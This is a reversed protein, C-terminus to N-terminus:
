RFLNIVRPVVLGTLGMAMRHGGTAVVLGAGLKEVTFKPLVPRWGTMWGVPEHFLMVDEALRLLEKGRADNRKKEATDGIRLNGTDGWPRVAFKTYPRTMVMSPVPIKSTGKVILGRGFMPRVGLPAQQALALVDDTRYGAAVLLRPAEYVAGAETGVSWGVRCPIISTVKAPTAPFLGTLDENRDLYLPRTRARPALDPRTLNVFPEDTLKAGANKVLWSFSDKLESRNWYSPWLSEFLPSSYSEIHAISSANRSGSSPDADDLLVVSWGLRSCELACAVGWFGGGIVILDLM